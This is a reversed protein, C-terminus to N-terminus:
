SVKTTEPKDIECSFIKDTYCPKETTAKLNVTCNLVVVSTSNALPFSRTFVRKGLDATIILCPATKKGTSNTLGMLFFLSPYHLKQDETDIKFHYNKTSSVTEIDLRTKCESPLRHSIHTTLDTFMLGSDQTNTIARLLVKLPASSSSEHDCIKAAQASFSIGCSLFLFFIFCFFM